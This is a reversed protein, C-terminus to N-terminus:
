REVGKMIIVAGIAVLLLSWVIRADIWSIYIRGLLLVGLAMLAGGLIMRAQHAALPSSAPAVDTGVPAVPMIIWALLYLLIGSGSVFALGVFAIRLLLPDVRFYEGLGGCVGAVVRDTPSRYVRERHPAQPQGPNTQEVM